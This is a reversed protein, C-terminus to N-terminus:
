FNWISVTISTVSMELPFSRSLNVIIPVNKMIQNQFFLTFFKTFPRTHDQFICFANWNSFHWQIRDSPFRHVLHVVSASVRGLKSLIEIWSQYCIQGYKSEIYKDRNTYFIKGLKSLMNEKCSTCGFKSTSCTSAWWFFFWNLLWRLLKLEVSSYFMNQSGQCGEIGKQSSILGFKNLNTPIAIQLLYQWSNYNRFKNGLIYM